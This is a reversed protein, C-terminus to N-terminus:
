RGHSKHLLGLLYEAVTCAERVVLIALDSSIGTPLTRGRGAGQLNRLVNVREAIQWISQHIARVAWYGPIDPGGASAPRRPVQGKASASRADTVSTSADHESYPITADRTWWTAM